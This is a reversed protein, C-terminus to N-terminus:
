VIWSRAVMALVAIGIALLATIGAQRVGKSKQQAVLCIAHHQELAETALATLDMAAADERMKAFQGAPYATAVFGFYSLPKLGAKGPPQAAVEASVRTRPLVVRISFWLSIGAMATSALALWQPVGRLQAFGMGAWLFAVLAGNMGSVFAAKADLTAMWRRSIEAWLSYVKLRTWEDVAAGPGDGREDEPDHMM